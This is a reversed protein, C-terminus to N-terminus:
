RVSKHEKTFMQGAARSNVKPAGSRSGCATCRFKLEVLPVAGLGRAVIHSLDIEANHNCDACFAYVVNGAELASLVTPM